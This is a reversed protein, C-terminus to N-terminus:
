WFRVAEVCPGLRKFDRKSSSFSHRSFNSVFLISALSQALSRSCASICHFSSSSSWRRKLLVIFWVARNADDIVVAASPMAFSDPLWTVQAIANAAVNPSAAAAIAKQSEPVCLNGVRWRVSESASSIDLPRLASSHIASPADLPTAIPRSLSADSFLLERATCTSTTSANIQMAISTIM